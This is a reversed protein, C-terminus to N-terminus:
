ATGFLDDMPGAADEVIPDLRRRYVSLATKADNGMVDAIREGPVDQASLLSAASRRFDYPVIKRDIGAKETIERVARRLNAPDVPTGISTTFALDAVNAWRPGAKVQAEAQVARHRKLAKVTIETTRWICRPHGEGDVVVVHDGVAPRPARGPGYDRDLSATARKSGSLILEASETAFAPTDTTLPPM